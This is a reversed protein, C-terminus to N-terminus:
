MQTSRWCKLLVDVNPRYLWPPATCPCHAWIHQGAQQLQYEAVACSPFKVQFLPSGGALASSLLWQPTQWAMCYCPWSTCSNYIIIHRMSWQIPRWCKWLTGVNEYSALMDMTRRCKLLAGVNEYSVLMEITRRCKLLTCVDQYLALMEMTRWKLLFGVHSYLALM